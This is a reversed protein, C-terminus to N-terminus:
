WSGGGVVAGRTTRYVGAPAVLVEATPRGGHYADDHGGVSRLAADVGPFPGAFDECAVCEAWWVEVVREAAVSPWEAEISPSPELSDTAKGTGYWSNM